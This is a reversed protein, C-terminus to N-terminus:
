GVQIIPWELVNRLQPLSIKLSSPWFFATVEHSAKKNFPSLLILPFLHYDSPQHLQIRIIFQVPISGGVIIWPQQLWENETSVISPFIYSLSTMYWTILTLLFWVPWTFVPFCLCLYKSLFAAQSKWKFKDVFLFPQALVNVNDLARTGNQEETDKTIKKEKKLIVPLM